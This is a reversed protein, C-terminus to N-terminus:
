GSLRVSQGSGRARELRGLLEPCMEEGSDGQGYPQVATGARPTRGRYVRALGAPRSTDAGLGYLAASRYRGLGGWNQAREVKWTPGLRLQGSGSGRLKGLLGALAIPRARGLSTASRVRASALTGPYAEAEARFRAREVNVPGIESVLPGAEREDRDLGVPRIGGCLISARHRPETRVPPRQNCHVLTRHVLPKV